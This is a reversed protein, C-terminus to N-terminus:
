AYINFFFKKISFSNADAIKDPAVAFAELDVKDTQQSNLITSHLSAIDRALKSFGICFDQKKESTIQAQGLQALLDAIGRLIDESEGKARILNRELNKDIEYSTMM